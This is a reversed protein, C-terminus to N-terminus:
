VITEKTWVVMAIQITKFQLIICIGNIRRFLRLFISILIKPLDENKGSSLDLLYVDGFVGDQYSIYVISKGDKSWFPSAGGKQTLLKMPEKGETDLVVLNQIGPTLRDTSFVLHRGDPAFFPDTDVYSDKKGTDSFNSNTLIIFDSNIFRKGQLIKDAWLGPNMKLLILDGSSDYQESM